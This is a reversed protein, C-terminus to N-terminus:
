AKLFALYKDLWKDYGLPEVMSRLAHMHAYIERASKDAFGGHKALFAGTIFPSRHAGALCHVFVNGKVLQANIIDVNEDLRKLAATEADGDAARGHAWRAVDMLTEGCKAAATVEAKNASLRCNFLHSIAHEKVFPETPTGGLYLWHGNYRGMRTFHTGTRWTESVTMVSRSASASKAKSLVTSEVLADGPFLVADLVSHLGLLISHFVHIAGLLCM